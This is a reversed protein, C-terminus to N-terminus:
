NVGAPEPGTSGLRTMSLTAISGCSRLTVTLATSSSVPVAALQDTLASASQPGYRSATPPRRARRRTSTRAWSTCRCTMMGSEANRAPDAAQAVARGHRPVVADLVARRLHRARGDRGPGGPEGGPRDRDGPAEDIRLMQYNKDFNSQEVRGNKLTIEGYLVATVGFVIASQLQAKVTDPNVVVGCDCACTVREVRVEGTEAVSVEAVEALYTGFVHQVAIGRGRRPGSRREGARWGPRGSSCPSPAPIAPWSHGAIPWRTRGPRRRWSTSSARSRLRQQRSDPSAAVTAIKMGPVKVDIGFVATGNVKGAVDLRKAPTGIIRFASPDKLQVETPVPLKAAADVLDGYSLRRGSASHVVVGSETHCGAPDVKWSDAAAAILMSRAAAGAQRLPMFFARVSTSGGTFQFGLLPNAFRKDDAPAHEVQVQTLDVDLEEAILMAMSTYTGQGMEVEPITLTVRGDRGIRVFGSPAFAAGQAASAPLHWGIM